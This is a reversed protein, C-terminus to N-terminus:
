RVERRKEQAPIQCSFLTPSSRPSKGAARPQYSWFSVNKGSGGVDHLLRPHLGNVARGIAVSVSALLPPGFQTPWEFHDTKCTEGVKTSLPGFCARFTVLFPGNLVYPGVMTSFPGSLLRDRERWPALALRPPQAAWAWALLLLRPVWAAWALPVQVRCAPSGHWHSGLPAAPRGMGAPRPATALRGM